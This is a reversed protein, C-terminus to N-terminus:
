KKRYVTVKEYGLGEALKSGLTRRGLLVDGLYAESVGFQAAVARKTGKLSVIDSLVDLLDHETAVHGILAQTARESLNPGHLIVPFHEFGGPEHRMAEWQRRFQTPDAGQTVDLVPDMGRGTNFDDIEEPTIANLTDGSKELGLAKRCKRRVLDTFRESVVEEKNAKPAGGAAILM